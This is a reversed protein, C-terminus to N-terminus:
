SKRNRGSQPPTSKKERLRRFKVYARLIVFLLGGLLLLGFLAYKGGASFLAMVLSLFIYAGLLSAIVHFMGKIKRSRDERV